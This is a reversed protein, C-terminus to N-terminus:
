RRNVPFRSLDPKIIRLTKFWSWQLLYGDASALGCGFADPLKGPHFAAAYGAINKGSAAQKAERREPIM